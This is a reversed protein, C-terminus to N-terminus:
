TFSVEDPGAPRGRVSVLIRARPNAPIVGPQAGQVTAGSGTLARPSVGAAGVSACVLRCVAARARARREGVFFMGVGSARAPPAGLVLGAGKVAYRPRMSQGRAPRAACERDLVVTDEATLPSRKAATEFWRVDHLDCLAPRPLVSVERSRHLPVM